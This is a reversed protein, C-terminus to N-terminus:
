GRIREIIREMGMARSGKILVVDRQKIIGSINQGAEDANDFAYITFGSNNGPKQNIEERSKQAALSMMEGVAVFINIGMDAAMKIIDSHAKGSFEGLELMDGLVAVARGEGKMHVLEKLAEKMSSPNANYSDNILTISNWRVVEFRMPFAKYSELATKIEELSMGLSLCVASAALANYVNFLGHVNLAISISGGDRLKLTFRSGNGNIVVDEAKVDSDNHMSFTILRADFSGQTRISEYGQMLFSDDANLVIATLGKLIELKASRISELSGLNGIHASGINTIVGYTPVAIECLRRIEGSANMGLELVVAEDDPAIRTLSLPLGIHNNLNGENKIVKFRKSLIAYLMEKTTTKGNSGTIAIVPINKRMRLFHALDQLARLTDEVCIIVKREPMEQPKVDVVAGDGKLLAEKLFDHGDFRQGRLAFFVDGDSMTRSNISVGSFYESSKLDESLLRGKTAKIIEETTLNAM